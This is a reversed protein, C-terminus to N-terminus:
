GALNKRNTRGRGTNLSGYNPTLCHCNPCLLELNSPHNNDWDGDIHNVQLPVRGTTPHVATWNCKQCKSNYKEHLWRRIHNSIEGVSRRGTESGALWSTIYLKYKHEAQCKNTCYKKSKGTLLVLCHVCNSM